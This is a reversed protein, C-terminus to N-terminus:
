AHLSFPFPALPPPPPPQPPCISASGRGSYPGFHLFHQRFYSPICHITHGFAIYRIDLTLHCCGLCQAPRKQRICLDSKGYVYSEKARHVSMSLSVGVFPSLFPSLIISVPGPPFASRNLPCLCMCVYMSYLAHMYPMCILCETYPMCILCVYLAYMHVEFDTARLRFYEHDPLAALSAASAAASAKQSLTKANHNWHALTM